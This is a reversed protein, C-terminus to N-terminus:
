SGGLLTRAAASLLSMDRSLTRHCVYDLDRALKPHLHRAVYVLDPDDATDLERAQDHAFLLAGPGIVGPRVRLLQREAQSYHELFRPVEPRPGILTMDGRLLNVLQPLEDLRTARLRRGLPTVRPDATGSVSPGGRDSGVVMTRLKLISFPIGDRGVRDQRYIAPGPSTLRIAAALVVLLPGACVLGVAAAVVDVTRRLASDRRPQPGRRRGPGLRASSRHTGGLQQAAPRTM